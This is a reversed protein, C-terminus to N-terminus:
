FDTTLTNKEFIRNLRIGIGAMKDEREAPEQEIDPVTVAEENWELNM